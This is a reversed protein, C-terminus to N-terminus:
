AVLDRRTSVALYGLGKGTGSMLHCLTETSQTEPTGDVVLAWSAM